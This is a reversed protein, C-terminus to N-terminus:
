LVDEGIEFSIGMSVKDIEVEVGLATKGLIEMFIKM